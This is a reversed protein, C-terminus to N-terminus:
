SRLKRARAPRGPAEQPARRMQKRAAEAQRLFDRLLTKPAIITAEGWGHPLKLAIEQLAAAMQTEIAYIRQINVGYAAALDAAREDNLLRRKAIEITQPQFNRKAEILAFAAADITM